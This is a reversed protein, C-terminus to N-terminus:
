GHTKKKNNTLILNLHSQLALNEVLALLSTQLKCTNQAFLYFVPFFVLSTSITKPIDSPVILGIAFMYNTVYM